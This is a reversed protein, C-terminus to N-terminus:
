KRDGPFDVQPPAAGEGEAGCRRLLQSVMPSKPYRAAFERALAPLRQESCRALVLLGERELGFVGSAFRTRHEDLWARALHPRGRDLERKAATILRLEEDFTPGASPTAAVIPASVELRPRAVEPASASSAIPAETAPAAEVVRPPAARAVPPDPAVVAPAEAHRASGYAAVGAGALGVAFGAGVWKTLAPWGLKLAGAAVPLPAAEAALSGFLRALGAEAAGPPPSVAREAALLRSVEESGMM